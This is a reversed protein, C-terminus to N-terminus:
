VEPYLVVVTTTPLDDDFDDDSALRPQDDDSVIEKMRAKGIDYVNGDVEGDFVRTMVVEVDGPYERLKAILEKVTM